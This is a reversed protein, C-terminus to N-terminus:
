ERSLGLTYEVQSSLWESARSCVLLVVDFVKGHIRISKWARTSKLFDTLFYNTISKEMVLSGRPIYTYTCEAAHGRCGFGLFDLYRSGGM